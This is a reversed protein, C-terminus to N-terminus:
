PIVFLNQIIVAHYTVTLSIINRLINPVDPVSVYESYINAAVTDSTSMLYM